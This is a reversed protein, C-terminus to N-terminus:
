RERGEEFDEEPLLARVRKLFDDLERSAALRAEYVRSARAEETELEQLRRAPTAPNRIADALAYKASAARDAAEVVEESLATFINAGHVFVRQLAARGGERLVSENEQVFGRAEREIASDLAPETPTPSRQPQGESSFYAAPYIYDEGSEDVVRLEDPGLSEDPLVRYSKGLELSAPYDSNDVCVMFGLAAQKGSTTM